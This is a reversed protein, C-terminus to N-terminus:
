IIWLLICGSVTIFCKLTILFKRLPVQERQSDSGLIAEVKFSHNWSEMAANDYCDGKKSMSCVIGHRRLKEQYVRACYQSGRDSHLIVGDIDGSNKIAMDLAELM